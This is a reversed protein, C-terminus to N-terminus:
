GDTYTAVIWAVTGDRKFERLAADMRGILAPMDAYDSARSVPYYYPKESLPKPLVHIRHGVGNERAWYGAKLANMPVVDVRDALLMPLHRSDVTTERRDLPAAWFAETYSYGRTAGIRLGVLDDLTEFAIRDKDEVRVILNWGLSLHSTRPYVLFAERERNHSLTAVMDIRGARADELLRKGSEYFVFEHAPVGAAPLVMALIGVDIGIAGAPGPWKLPAEPTAGVVFTRDTATAMDAAGVALVAVLARRAARGWEEWM